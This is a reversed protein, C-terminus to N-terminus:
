EHVLSQSPHVVQSPASGWGGGGPTASFWVVKTDAVGCEAAFRELAHQLNKVLSAPLVVDDAFLMHLGSARLNSVSWAKAEVDHGQFDFCSRVANASDLM